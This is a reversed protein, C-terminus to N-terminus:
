NSRPLPWPPSNALALPCGLRLAQDRAHQLIADGADADGLHHRGRVADLWAMGETWFNAYFWFLSLPASLGLLEEDSVDAPPTGLIVRSKDHELMRYRLSDDPQLEALVLSNDVLATLLDLIDRHEIPGGACVQEAAGNPERRDFAPISRGLRVAEYRTLHEIPPMREPHVASLPPVQWTTEGSILLTERSTALISVGAPLNSCADGCNTRM